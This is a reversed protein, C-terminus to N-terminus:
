QGLMDKLDQESFGHEILFRYQADKGQNNLDSAGQSVMDQVLEDMDDDDLDEVWRPVPIEKETPMTGKM